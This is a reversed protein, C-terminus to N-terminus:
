KSKNRSSNEKSDFSFSYNPIGKISIWPNPNLGLDSIILGAFNVIGKEQIKETAGTYGKALTAGSAVLKFGYNDRNLKEVLLRVLETMGGTDSIDDFLVWKSLFNNKLKNVTREDLFLTDKGGGTYSDIQASYANLSHKGNKKLRVVPKGLLTAMLTGPAIASYEPVVVVDTNHRLDYEAIMERFAVSTARPDFLVKFIDEYDIGIGGPFEVINGDKLLSGALIRAGRSIEKTTKLYDMSDHFNILRNPNGPPKIIERIVYPIEQPKGTERLNKPLVM